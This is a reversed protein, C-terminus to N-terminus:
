PSRRAGVLMAAAAIFLPVGYKEWPMYSFPMVILFAIVLSWPMLEPVAPPTHRWRAAADRGCEILVTIWVAAMLFFAFRVALPPLTAELVRHVFGVTFVDQATQALSAKVPFALVFIAAVIGAAVSTWRVGHWVRWVILPSLYVAPVALYLSLAHPDYRVNGQLYLSRLSNQPSLGQWLWVLAAFPVLGVALAFVARLLSRSRGAHQGLAEAGAVALVLFAFYQRTLVSAGAALGAVWIQRHLLGYWALVMMLIALMDTFVFASLGIFYPNLVVTALAVLAPKWESQRTDVIKYFTWSTACALIASLIRLTWIEFGVLAGWAAYLIFVLPGNMEPYTRLLEVDIGRGFLRITEVLHVEDGWPPRNATVGYLAAFWLLLGAGVFKDTAFWPRM